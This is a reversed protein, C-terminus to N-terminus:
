MWGALSVFKPQISTSSRIYDILSNIFEEKCVGRLLANWQMTELRGELM